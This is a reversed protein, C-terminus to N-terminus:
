CESAGLIEIGLNYLKKMCNLARGEGLYGRTLTLNM